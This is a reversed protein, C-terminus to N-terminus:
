DFMEGLKELFRENTLHAHKWVFEQVEDERMRDGFLLRMTNFKCVYNKSTKSQMLQRQVLVATQLDKDVASPVRVLLGEEGSRDRCDGCLCCHSDELSVFMPDKAGRQCHSCRDVRLRMPSSGFLGSSSSLRNISRTLKSMDFATPSHNAIHGLPRPPTAPQTRGVSEDPTGPSGVQSAKLPDVEVYLVSKRKSYSELFYQYDYADEIAMQEAEFDFFKLKLVSQDVKLEDGALELMQPLTQPMQRVPIEIGEHEFTVRRM